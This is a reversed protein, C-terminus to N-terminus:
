RGKSPRVTGKRKPAEDKVKDLLDCFLQAMQWLAYLQCQRDQTGEPNLLLHGILSWRAYGSPPNVQDEKEILQELNLRILDAACWTAALTRRLEVNEM